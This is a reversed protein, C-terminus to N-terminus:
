IAPELNFTSQGAARARGSKSFREGEPVYKQMVESLLAAKWEPSPTWEEGADAWGYQDWKQRNRHIHNIGPLGRREELQAAKGDLKAALSRFVTGLTNYITWRPGNDRLRAKFDDISPVAIM